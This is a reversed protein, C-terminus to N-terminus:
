SLSSRVKTACLKAKTSCFQPTRCAAEERPALGFHKRYATSFAAANTFGVRYGIESVTLDHTRLLFQAVELRRNRVHGFITTGFAKLFNARLTTANIGLERTLVDITPPAAVDQDLLERARIVQDFHRQSMGVPVKERQELLRATEAVLALTCSELHLRELAGNYNEDLMRYAMIRLMETPKLRLLSFDGSLMHEFVQQEEGGSLLQLRELFAPHVTFGTMACSMGSRCLTRCRGSGGFCLLFPEGRRIPIDGVGDITIPAAEGELPFAFLLSRGVTEDLHIDEIYRVNYGTAFLGAQVELGLVTGEMVASNRVHELQEQHRMVALRDAVADIDSLFLHKEPSTFSIDM